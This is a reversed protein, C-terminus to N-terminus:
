RCRPTAGHDIRDADATVLPGCMGLCHAGGLLDVLAFVVLGVRDAFEPVAPTTTGLIAIGPM